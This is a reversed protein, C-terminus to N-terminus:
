WNLLIVALAAMALGVYHRVQYRESWLIMSVITNGVIIGSVGTPFVVSAPLLHLAWLIGINAAINAGGLFGGTALERIGPKPANWAAVSLNVAAACCFLCALFVPMQGPHGLQELGKFSTAVLGQIAFMVLLIASSKLTMAEGTSSKGSIILPLSSAACLMGIYLMREPREGWVVIAVLIAISSSLNAVTMTRAVGCLKLGASMLYYNSIYGLGAFSGLLVPLLMPRAGSVVAWGVFVVAAFIYNVAGVWHMNMGRRQAFRMINGFFIAGIIYLWVLHM